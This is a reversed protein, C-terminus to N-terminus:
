ELLLYQRRLNTGLVFLSIAQKYEAWHETIAAKLNTYLPELDIRPISNSPKATKQVPTVSTVNSKSALSSATPPQFTLASPDLSLDPM